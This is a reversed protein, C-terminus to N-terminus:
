KPYPKVGILLAVELWKWYCDVDCFGIESLWRLQTEVDLLRKAHDDSEKTWGVLNLFKQHLSRSASAVQDLNFFMGKSDLIDFIEKYLQKKREHTLHHIALGSIIFDFSGMKILPFNLDHNVFQLNKDKRFRKRALQLMPESYDLAIGKAEPNKTKVLALLRGDGTGLDLVRNINYPIQELLIREIEKQHPLNKSRSLYAQVHDVSKWDYSQRTGNINL